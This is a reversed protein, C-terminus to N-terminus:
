SKKAVAAEFKAELEKCRMELTENKRRQRDVQVELRDVVAELGHREKVATAQATLAATLRERLVAVDEAARQAANREADLTAHSNAAQLQATSAQKRLLQVEEQLILYHEELKKKTKDLEEQARLAAAKAASLQERLEDVQARLVTAEVAARANSDNNNNNGGGSVTGSLTALATELRTREQAWAQQSYAAERQADELALQLSSLEKQVQQAINAHRAAEERAEELESRAATAQSKATACCQSAGQLQSATETFAKKADHLQAQATTLAEVLIKKEEQATSM